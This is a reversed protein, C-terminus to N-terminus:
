GYAKVKLKTFIKHDVLQVRQFDDYIHLKFENGFRDTYLILANTDISTIGKDALEKTVFTIEYHKEVRKGTATGKDLDEREKITGHFLKKEDFLYKKAKTESYISDASTSYDFPVYYLEDGFYDRWADMFAQSIENIESQAM